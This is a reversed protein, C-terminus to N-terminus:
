ILAFGFDLLRLIETDPMQPESVIKQAGFPKSNRKEPKTIQLVWLKNLPSPKAQSWGAAAKPPQGMTRADRIPQPRLQLLPQGKM